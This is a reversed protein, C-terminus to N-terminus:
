RGARGRGRVADVVALAVLLGAGVLVAEGRTRYATAAVVVAGLAALPVAVALLAKPRSALHESEAVLGAVSAGFCCVGVAAVAFVGLLVGLEAVALGVAVFPPWPSAGASDRM